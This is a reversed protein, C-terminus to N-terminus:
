SPQKELEDRVVRLMEGEPATRGTWIEFQRVGQEVFMSVGQIVDIGRERAVRILPTELPNYVLDFFVKCNMEAAAIPSEHSQGRMGYPTTNLIADFRTQALADRRQVRVGLEAALADAKAATRNLISVHAGQQKLGYIAARAAGGAGLVLVDAGALSLRRSLPGVIGAIDTNFGALAADHHRLITNCAGMATVTDDAHTLLPVVREKLPMTISLGHIRLREMVALLEQADGTELPLYVADLETCALATNHMQPSKSGAIPDGAVAYVTTDPTINDVRYLARLTSVSMQGPATGEGTDPAAFTFASGFRPGLVRTLVGKMGMSMAILRGDHAHRELLDLLLLSDRLSQATPVIKVFDPTHRQIREFVPELAPTADFDHWSLIVAAGAARLPALVDTGLEEATEIEIDVLWCGAAAAAKLIALQQQADGGFSGGYATRRCTAVATVSRHHELFTRLGPLLSAPDAVSDLRFEVFPTATATIAATEFMAAGAHAVCVRGARERVDRPSPLIRKERSNEVTVLGITGTRRERACRAAAHQLTDHPVRM